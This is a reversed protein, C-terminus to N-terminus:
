ASVYVWADLGSALRVRLRRYLDGEYLDAAALDADTIEFVLGAVPAPADGGPILVPYVGGDDSLTSRTFGDLRDPTGTLTRGFHAIHIVPDQLTGYAFLLVGTM